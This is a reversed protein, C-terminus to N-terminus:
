KFVSLLTSLEVGVAAGSEIALEVKDDKIDFNDSIYKKLEAREVDTATKLEQVSLKADKIGPEVAKAAKLIENLDGLSFGDELASVLEGVKCGLYVLEKTEKLPM